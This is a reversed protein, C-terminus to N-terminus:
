QENDARAHGGGGGDDSCLARHAVALPLALLAIYKNQVPCITAQLTKHITYTLVNPATCYTGFRVRPCKTICLVIYHTYMMYVCVYTYIYRRLGDISNISGMLRAFLAAHVGDGHACCTNYHM